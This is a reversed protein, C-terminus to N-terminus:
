FDYGMLCLNKFKIDLSFGTKLLLLAWRIIVSTITAFGTPLEISCFGVENIKSM